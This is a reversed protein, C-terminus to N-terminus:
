IESGEIFNSKEFNIPTISDSIYKDLNIKEVMFLDSGLFNKSINMFNIPNDTVFIKNSSNHKKNLMDDELLKQKIELSTEESPDVLNVDGLYEKILKKLLPYHTCGLILTDIDNQKFYVLSEKIMIKTSKKNILGEEVIPAFLPTSRTFVSISNDLRKILKKHAASSTTQRTGIIGIKKNKTVEIAKKVGANIVGVVPINFNSRIVDLAVASATNCAVVIMKVDFNLLFKSNEISISKIREISKSGYPCRANDGLYILNEKPLRKKIERLVTLGGVGSDFVGIPKTM